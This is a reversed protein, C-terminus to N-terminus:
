DKRSLLYLTILNNTDSRRPKRHKRTDPFEKGEIIQYPTYGSSLIFERFKEPLPYPKERVIVWIRNNYSVCGDLANKIKEVDTLHKKILCTKLNGRYYWKFADYVGGTNDPFVILDNIKEQKGVYAAVERWQERVPEVYFQNLGPFILIVYTALTIGVPIAKGITLLILAILIYFAPSSCIVYRHLYIPKIFESLLFLTLIPFILWVGVLLTESKHDKLNILNEPLSKLSALWQEIGVYRSFLSTALVFFLLAVAITMPAPYDLGSGIYYILTMLPMWLPTEPIWAPGLDVTVADHFSSVISPLIGALILVQSVLWWPILARLSRFCLVFYIGQAAIIFLGFDHAYFLLITSLAYLVFYIPKRIKLAKIYFYFSVLTLLVFLSYYRLDQSYYIQYQSIAMLLASVLGVKENYLAKGVCYILPISVTGLLAPLMRTSSESTGFLDIWFSALIIFLQPRSGTLISGLDGQAVHLMIIEDYWYSEGGLDYFRLVSALAVIFILSFNPNFIKHYSLNM